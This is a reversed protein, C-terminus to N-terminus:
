RPMVQLMNEQQLLGLLKDPSVQKYGIIEVHGADVLINTVQPYSDIVPHYQESLAFVYDSEICEGDGNTRRCSNKENTVVKLYRLVSPSLPDPYQIFNSWSTIEYWGDGAISWCIGPIIGLSLWNLTRSGCYNASAVGAFPAAVTILKIKANNKGLFSMSNAELAKRAVLGGLSHGLITINKNRSVVMLQQLAFVLKDASLILSDRVNYSYCIMQQGHSAYAKALSHYRGASNIRGHVLVTLPYNANFKITRVTPDTCSVLNEIKVETDATPRRDLPLSDDKVLYSSSNSCALLLAVSGLLLIFRM